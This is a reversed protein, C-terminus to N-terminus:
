HKLSKLYKQPEDLELICFRTPASYFSPQVIRKTITEGGHATLPGFLELKTWGRLYVVLLLMQERELATTWQASHRELM